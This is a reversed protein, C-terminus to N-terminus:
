VQAIGRICENRIREMGTGGLFILMKRNIEGDRLLRISRMMAPRAVMKYILGKVRAEKRRDYIM